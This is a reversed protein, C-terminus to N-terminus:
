EYVYSDDMCILTEDMYTDDMCTTKDMCTNDM